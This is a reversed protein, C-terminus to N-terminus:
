LCPMAKSNHGSRLCNYLQTELTFRPNRSPNAASPEVTYWSCDATGSPVVPALINCWVKVPGTGASERCHVGDTTRWKRSWYVRPQGLSPPRYLYLLGHAVILVIIQMNQGQEYM